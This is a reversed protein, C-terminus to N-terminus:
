DDIVAFVEDGVHVEGKKELGLSCALVPTNGFTQKEKEDSPLRYIKLTQFPEKNSKIGTYPNVTTMLCRTTHKIRYLIAEGM